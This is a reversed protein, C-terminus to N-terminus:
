FTGKGATKGQIPHGTTKSASGKAFEEGGQNGTAVNGDNGPVSRELAMGPRGAMIQNLFSGPSDDFVTQIDGPIPALGSRSESGPVFDRSTPMSTKSPGQPSEATIPLTEKVWEGPPRQAPRMAGEGVMSGSKHNFDSPKTYGPM